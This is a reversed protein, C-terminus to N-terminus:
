ILDFEEWGGIATRNAILASAGANDATVYLNNARARLSVSGDANRILDFAEWAGGVAAASAILASGGANPTTVFKNNAHARLSITGDPNTVKDFQEWVGIATKNAILPSAGANDATVYKGNAHARFSVVTTGGGTSSATFTLWNINTFDGAQTSTFTVYVTHVGTVTSMAATKSAWTQWGGTPALAVTALVPNSQSDIRIQANGTVGAAAGSAVRLTVGAGGTGFDISNYALWDGNTIYGVDQGGGTDTTTETQTGSQTSYAEAQITSFASGGGGGGGSSGTIANFARSYAYGTAKDYHDVEWFSLEQVGNAAAFQELSVADSQSFFTGDDNTGAIPTIGLMNWAQTASIGFISQLQGVTGRAASEAAQLDNTGAGFDMAMINVNNVRVGKAKADNLVSLQPATLGSPAVALTYDIQVAPNAAQLAALAQNRRANSTTDSIVGGEIDFDLRTIGYTNVVNAYAAQLSSVNTCTQALEGGAAGGFSAIVNGGANKLNNIETSFSGIPYNGAEWMGTCGSQPIVFALTYFKTGTASMDAAMDGVTSSSLELYPASYHAPFAGAAHAAGGLGIALPAQLLAAALLVRTRNTHRKM